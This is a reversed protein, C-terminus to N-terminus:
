RPVAHELVTVERTPWGATFTLYRGDPSVHLNRLGDMGIGLRRPTRDELGVMWVSRPETAPTAARVFVLGRDDPMWDVGALVEPNKVREGAREGDGPPSPPSLRRVAHVCPPQVWRGIRACSEQSGAPELGKV